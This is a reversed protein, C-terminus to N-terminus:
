HWWITVSIGIFYLKIFYTFLQYLFPQYAYRDYGDVYSSCNNKITGVFGLPM